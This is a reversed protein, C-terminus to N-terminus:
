RDDEHPEDDPEVYTHVVVRAATAPDTGREELDRRAFEEFPDRSM